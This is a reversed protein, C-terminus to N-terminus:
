WEKSGLHDATSIQEWQDIPVFHTYVMSQNLNEAEGLCLSHGTNLRVWCVAM